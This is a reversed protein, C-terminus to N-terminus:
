WFWISRLMSLHGNRAPIHFHIKPNAIISITKTPPDSYVLLSELDVYRPSSPRLKVFSWFNNFDIWYRRLVVVLRAAACVFWIHLYDCLGALNMESSESSLSRSDHIRGREWCSWDREEIQSWWYRGKHYFYCEFRGKHQKPTEVFTSIGLFLSM